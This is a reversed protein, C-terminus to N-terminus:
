MGMHQPVEMIDVFSSPIMFHPNDKFMEQVAEASEAEIVCMYNLDNTVSKPGNSDMRINKGLPLGEGIFSKENKKTWAMMDAGLKQGQAKMEEPPTEKKWKEMTEVPVRYIVVFKKM